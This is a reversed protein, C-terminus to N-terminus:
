YGSLPSSENVDHDHTKKRRTRRHQGRRSEKPYECNINRRACQSIFYLIILSRLLEFSARSVQLDSRRQGSWAAWVRDKAGQLFSM